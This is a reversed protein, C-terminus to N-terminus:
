PEDQPPLWVQLLSNDRVGCNVALASVDTAADFVDPSTWLIDSAIVTALITCWVANDDPGCITSGPMLRLQGPYPQGNGYLGFAHSALAGVEVNAPGVLVKPKLDGPGVVRVTIHEM